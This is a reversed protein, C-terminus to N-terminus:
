FKGPYTFVYVCMILVLAFLLIVLSVEEGQRWLLTLYYGVAGAYGAIELPGFDKQHVGTARYLENMGIISVALLVTFLVASGAAISVAALIVLIIGSFLRTWFM